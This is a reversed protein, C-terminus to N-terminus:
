IYEIWAPFCLSDFFIGRIVASYKEHKLDNVMDVFSNLMQTEVDRLTRMSDLSETIQIFSDSM